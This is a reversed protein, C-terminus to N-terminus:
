VFVTRTGSVIGRLLDQVGPLAHWAAWLMVAVLALWLLGSWVDAWGHLRGGNAYYLSARRGAGIPMALLAYVALIAVLAIWRPLEPSWWFGDGLGGWAAIGGPEYASWVVCLAFLMAAFWVASMVTLVPLFLGGTVRAAAGPLRAENGWRWAGFGSRTM